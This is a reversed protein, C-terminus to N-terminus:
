EKVALINVHEKVFDPTDPHHGLDWLVLRSNDGALVFANVNDETMSFGHRFADFVMWSMHNSVESRFPSDLMATIWEAAQVLMAKQKQPNLGQPMSSLHLKLPGEMDKPEVVKGMRWNAWSQAVAYKLVPPWESGEQYISFFLLLAAIFEGWSETKIDLRLHVLCEGVLGRVGKNIPQEWKNGM